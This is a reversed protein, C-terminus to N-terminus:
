RGFARCVGEWKQDGPRGRRALWREVRALNKEFRPTGRARSAALMGWIRLDEDEWPEMVWERLKEAVEWCWDWQGSEYLMKGMEHVIMGVKYKARVGMGDWLDARVMGVQYVLWERAMILAVLKSEPDQAGKYERVLEGWTEVMWTTWTEGKVCVSWKEACWPVERVMGKVVEVRRRAVVELVGEVIGDLVSGVLEEGECERAVEEAWSESELVEPVLVRGVPAIDNCGPEEEQDRFAVKRTRVPVSEVAGEDRWEMCRMSAELANVVDQQWRYNWWAEKRLGMVMEVREELVDRDRLREHVRNERIWAEEVELEGQWRQVEEDAREWKRLMVELKEREMAMGRERRGERRSRVPVERTEGALREGEEWATRLEEKAEGNGNNAAM